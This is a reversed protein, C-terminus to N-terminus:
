GRLRRRSGHRAQVERQRAGFEPQRRLGELRVRAQRVAESHQVLPMPYDVGLRVGRVDQGSRGLDHLAGITSADLGALEPVWTRVFTAEPDHEHLQRTPNYMRLTNNGTAGAQMQVQPYHIGPEYDIFNRALHLAVPRWDLWLDYCAFSVLMARMRFNIWGTRLLCRMVADILPYGTKGARWARLRREEQASRAGENRLGLMSAHAHREELEPEDELKQMFHCHWALRSLFADLSKVLGLDRDRAAQKRRALTHQVV